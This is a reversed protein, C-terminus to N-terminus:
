VDNENLQKQKVYRSAQKRFYVTRANLVNKFWKKSVCVTVGNIDTNVKSINRNKHKPGNLTM